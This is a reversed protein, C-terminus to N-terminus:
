EGSQEFAGKSSLLHTVADFLRQVPNGFQLVLAEDACVQRCGKPLLADVGGALDSHLVTAIVDFDIALMDLRLVVDFAIKM